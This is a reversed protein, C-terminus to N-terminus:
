QGSGEPQSELEKRLAGLANHLRSKVTGLPVDLRTAIDALSWDAWYRLAVVIQHDRSLGAVLRGLEDRALAARFPDAVVPGDRDDELTIWRVAPRSRLRNRCVNVLIQSFWADFREADRLRPWAQWARLFAEQLADEAEVADRLILGALRYAPQAQATALAVFATPTRAAEAARSAGETRIRSTM